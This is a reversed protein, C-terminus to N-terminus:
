RRIAAQAADLPQSRMQRMRRSPLGIADSKASSAFPTEVRHLAAVVGGVGLVRRPSDHVTELDSAGVLDPQMTELESAVGLVVLQLPAGPKALKRVDGRERRASRTAEISQDRHLAEALGSREPLSRALQEPALHNIGDLHNIGRNRGVGLYERGKEWLWPIEDGRPLLNRLPVGLMKGFVVSVTAGGISFALAAAIAAGLGGYLPVLVLNLGISAVLATAESASAHLPRGQAILANGLLYVAAVGVSSLALVRLDDISGRFEEGFITVCLIPAAVVLVVTLAIGLFIAVRFIRAAFEGARERTARVLDPRQVM